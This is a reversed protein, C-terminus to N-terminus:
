RRSRRARLTRSAGLALMGALVALAWPTDVPVPEVGTGPGSTGVARLYWNGDDADRVLTYSVGNHTVASALVFADLASAPAGGMVRVVLIGKGVTAQGASAASPTIAIRTPTGGTSVSAAQLVDSESQADGENLTTDLALVGGNAEYAGNVALTNRPAGDSRHLTVVGGQNSLAGSLQRLAPADPLPDLTAGSALSLQTLASDATMTWLASQDLEVNLTGANTSAGTFTGGHAVVRASTSSADAEFVLPATTATAGTLTVLAGTAGAFRLATSQSSFTTPQSATVQATGGSLLAATSASAPASSTVSGGGNLTLEGNGTVQVTNATQSELSVAGTATVVGGSQNLVVSGDGNASATLSQAFNVTGAGVVLQTRNRTPYADPLDNASDLVVPGNFQAVSSADGMRLVNGQRTTTIATRGDVQLTGSAIQAFEATSQVSGTLNGQVHILNRASGANAGSYIYLGRTNASGGTFGLTVTLNNTAVVQAAPTAPVSGINAGGASIAYVNGANTQVDPSNTFHLISGDQTAYAVNNGSYSTATADCTDGATAYVVGNPGGTNGCAAWAAPASLGVTALLLASHIPNRSILRREACTRTLGAPM